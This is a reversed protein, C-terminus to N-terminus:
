AEKGKLVKIGKTEYEGAPEQALKEAPRMM